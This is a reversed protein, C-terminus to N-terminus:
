ISRTALHPARVGARELQFANRGKPEAVLQLAAVPIADADLTQARMGLAYGIDRWARWTGAGLAGDVAGSPYRRARARANLASQLARVDAGNDGQSLPRTFDKPSEPPRAKLTLVEDEQRNIQPKAM